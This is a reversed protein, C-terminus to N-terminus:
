KWDIVNWPYLIYKKHSKAFCDLLYLALPELESLAFFIPRLAEDAINYKYKSYNDQFVSIQYVASLSDYKDLYRIEFNRDRSLPYFRKAYEFDRKIPISLKLEIDGYFENNM